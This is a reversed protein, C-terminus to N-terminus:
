RCWHWRGAATGGVQVLLVSAFLEGDRVCRLMIADFVRGPPQMKFYQHIWYQQTEKEVRAVEKGVSRATAMLAEMEDATRPLPEGRLFAKLQMHVLLDSYRRIPSSFQVYGDLGLSSHRMPASCNTDSRVMCRRLMVARCPGEPVSALEEESPLQPAMQYRYPMPIGHAGGLEAVVQGSLVMYESVLRRAASTWDLPFLEVTPEEIGDLGSVEVKCEPLAIETAGQATRWAQRKDAGGKLAELEKEEETGLALLEDVDDYSLRYTPTVYSPVVTSEAVSGDDALVVGVSVACCRQGATLSMPGAALTPPFMPVRETPLYMSTCRARAERELPDGDAGTLWRTPDAVHVWLRQRGDGLYEVSLADDVETTEESDITYTKLHTLDVRRGEDPDPPPNRVREEALELLEESFATPLDSRLLTTNAHRPLYGADVLVSVAADKDRPVAMALLIEEAVDWSGGKKECAYAELAAMDEAWEGRAWEERAPKQGWPLAAAARLAAVVGQTREEKARQLQRFGRLEEVQAVPRSEYSLILGTEKRRSRKFYLRDAQLTRHSVFQFLPDDSGYLITALHAACFPEEQASLTEWAMEMMLELDKELEAACAEAKDLFAALDEVMHVDGGPLVFEIQQPKISCVNGLTDIVSWKKKGDPKQLIGVCLSGDRRFEVMMGKQLDEEGIPKVVQEKLANSVVMGQRSGTWPAPRGIGPLISSPRSIYRVSYVTSFAQRRGPWGRCATMCNRVSLSPVDHQFRNYSCAHRVGRALNAGMSPSLSRVAFGAHNVLGACNMPSYKCDSSTISTYPQAIAEIRWISRYVACVSSIKDRELVSQSVTFITRSRTATLLSGFIGLAKVTAGGRSRPYRTAWRKVGHFFASVFNEALVPKSLM